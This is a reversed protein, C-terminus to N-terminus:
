GAPSRSPPTASATSPSGPPTTPSPSSSTAPAHPRLAERLARGHRQLQPQRRGRRAPRRRALGRPGRGVRQLEFLVHVRHGDGPAPGLRPGQLATPSTSRPTATAATTSARSASTACSRGPRGAPGRPNPELKVERMVELGLQLATDRFYDAYDKGSRARSGSCASRRSPGAAHAVPRVDRGRHPHRRQRRHLLVRLRVPPRRDLRHLGRRARQRHGPRVLCNDSILPGLM